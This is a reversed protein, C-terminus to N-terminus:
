EVILTGKMGMQRHSGVSCYYEFSGVKDATFEITDQQSGQIKKTAVNFEDIKLDHFGGTNDLTIRVTDGKKVKITAPAFAFNNGQITFSKIDTNKPEETAPAPKKEVIKETTEILPKEQNMDMNKEEGGTAMDLNIDSTNPAVTNSKYVWAGGGIIVVIAIISLVINKNM